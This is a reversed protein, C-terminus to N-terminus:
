AEPKAILENDEFLNQELPKGCHYCFCMKNEAPTGENLTFYQGCSTAWTDSTEDGDQYWHCWDNAIKLAPNGAGMEAEHPRSKSATAGSLTCRISAKTAGADILHIANLIVAKLSEAERLRVAREEIKANAAALADAAETLLICIPPQVYELPVAWTKAEARLRDFLSPTENASM